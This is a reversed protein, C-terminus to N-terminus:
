NERAIRENEILIKTIYDDLRQQDTPGTTLTIANDYYTMKLLHGEKIKVQKAVFQPILIGLSGGIKRVKVTGHM